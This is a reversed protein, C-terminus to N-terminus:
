RASAPAPNAAAGSGNGGGSASSSNGLLEKILRATVRQGVGTIVAEIFSRAAPQQLAQTLPEMASPDFGKSSSLMESVRLVQARLEMLTEEEAQTGVRMPPLRKLQEPLLAVLPALQESRATEM